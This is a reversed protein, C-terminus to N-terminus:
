SLFSNNVAEICYKCTNISFIAKLDTGFRVDRRFTVKNTTIFPRGVIPGTTIFLNGQFTKLLQEGERISRIQRFMKDM